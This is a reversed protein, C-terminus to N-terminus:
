GGGFNWTTGNSPKLTGGGALYNQNPAFAGYGDQQPQAYSSQRQGFYQGALSALGGAADGWANAQGIAANGSNIGMQGYAGGIANASQQGMQGAGVAANQGANVGFQLAGRFNNLYNAANRQGFNQLDAATGGGSLNGIAARNIAQTGGQLAGLYDPSNMFGSYDGGNLANLQGISTQGFELYPSINEQFQERAARQEAISADQGKNAKDAADGAADASIAAGAVTAVGAVVLGWSM